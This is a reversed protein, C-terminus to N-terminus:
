HLSSVFWSVQDVVRVGAFIKSVASKRQEEGHLQNGLVLSLIEIQATIRTNSSGKARSRQLM